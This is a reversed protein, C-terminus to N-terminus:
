KIIEELNLATNIMGLVGQIDNMVQSNWFRILKYGQLKLYSSRAMDYESQEKHQRRWYRLYLHSGDLKIVLKLKVACFDVIYKGIAHQRRFSVRHLKSGRM